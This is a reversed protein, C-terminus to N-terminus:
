IWTSTVAFCTVDGVFSYYLLGFHHIRKFLLGSSLDIFAQWGSHAQYEDRQLKSRRLLGFLSVYQYSEMIIYDM